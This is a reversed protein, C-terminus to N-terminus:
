FCSCISTINIIKMRELCSGRYTYTHTHLNRLSNVQVLIGIYQIAWPLICKHSFVHYKIKQKGGQCFCWNCIQVHISFNLRVHLMNRQIGPLKIRHPLCTNEAPTLLKRVLFEGPAWHHYKPILKNLCM